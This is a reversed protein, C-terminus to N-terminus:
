CRMIGDAHHLFMDCVCLVSLVCARAFAGVGCTCVCVFDKMSMVCLFAIRAAYQLRANYIITSTRSVDLM